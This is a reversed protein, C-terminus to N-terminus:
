REMSTQVFGRFAHLDSFQYPKEKWGSELSMWRFGSVVLRKQCMFHYMKAAMGTDCQQQLLWGWPIVM